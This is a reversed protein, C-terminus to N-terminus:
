GRGTVTDFASRVLKVPWAWATLAKRRSREAEGQYHEAMGMLVHYTSTKMDRSTGTWQPIGIEAEREYMRQDRRDAHYTLAHLVILIFTVVAWLAGATLAVDLLTGRDM